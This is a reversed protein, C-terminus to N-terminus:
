LVYQLQGPIMPISGAPAVGYPCVKTPNTSAARRCQAALNVGGRALLLDEVMGALRLAAWATAIAPSLKPLSLLPNRERIYGENADDEGHWIHEPRDETYMPVELVIQRRKSSSNELLPRPGAVADTQVYDDYFMREPPMKVVIWVKM